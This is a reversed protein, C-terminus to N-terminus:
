LAAADILEQLREALSAVDPERMMSRHNGAVEVEVVGATDLAHWRDLLMHERYEQSRLLTVIGGYPGARYTESARLNADLVRRRQRGAAGRRRGFSLIDAAEDLRWPVRGVIEDLGSSSTRQEPESSQM